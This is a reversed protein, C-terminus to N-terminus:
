INLYKGVEFKILDDQGELYTLFNDNVEIRGLESIRVNVLQNDRKLKNILTGSLGIRGLKSTSKEESGYIFFNYEREDILNLDMLFKVYENLQYSVFDSEIKIKVLAINVLEKYSKGGLNIYFKKSYSGNNSLKSIEGYSEGIFFARGKDTFRISYFYKVTKEIHESISLHHRDEVFMNYYNRAAENSLRRFVKDSILEFFGEIFTLYVKEITTKKKWDAGEALFFSRKLLIKELVGDPDTYKSYLGSEIFSIRIKEDPNDDNFVLYNEREIIRHSDTDKFGELHESGGEGDDDNVKSSSDYNLLVPNKINDKFNGSSLKKIKNEMKSNSRAYESSNIFHVSPLLKDLGKNDRSFVADLRNVRGILNTLGKEDLAHVNMIFLNDIPLNVGELIVSNAIICKLGSISKFKYELYEKIIDPLKGHIYVIGRKVYEVCYFEQHVNKSIIASLENLEDNDSSISYLDEFIEKSLSEVQRPARLYFFNKSKLNKNIYGIYSAEKQLHYFRNLFRNYKYLDGNMRYEYIEPEKVSHFIRQEVIEQNDEVKLNNSDSILPSLYYVLSRPKRKKNKRILRSLLISRNDSSFLNHAEDIILIDFAIDDIKMLRLAREQTLVGVFNEEGEYMEDHFIIKRDRISESLSRYTQVLLSKTPVIVAAKVNSRNNVIDVILSSKGYSTPAIFCNDGEKQSLINERSRNQELTEIINKYRFKQIRYDIHFLSENSRNLEKDLIFSTIPFLGSNVSIDLLPSYDQYSVSYKLIIYYAIDFYKKIRRDKKYELIFLISCTLLYEKEIEDLEKDTVLLEMAKSFKKENVLWNFGTSMDISWTIFLLM